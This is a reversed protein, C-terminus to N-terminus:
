PGQVEAILGDFFAKLTKTRDQALVRGTDTQFSDALRLLKTQFHDLCFAVEDLPRTAAAPDTEHYLAQGGQGATMLCRAVGIHGLADLRDADQLIRAELTEPTINASYSHAAIAHCTAKIRDQPWDLATLLKRAKEAAKRSGFPRDPSLKDVWVSDHLITAALLIDADGGEGEMITQVNRWVRRLHAMDHAGDTTDFAHPLLANALSTDPFGTM